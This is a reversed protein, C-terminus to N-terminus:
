TLFPLETLVAAAAASLILAPTRLTMLSSRECQVWDAEAQARGVRMQVLILLRGADDRRECAHIPPFLRTGKLAFTKTQTHTPTHRAQLTHM